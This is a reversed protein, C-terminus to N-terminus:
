GSKGGSTTGFFRARTHGIKPHRCSAAASRTRCFTIENQRRAKSRGYQTISLANHWSCASSGLRKTAISKWYRIWADLDHEIKGPWAFLHIHDPMIVYIGTEWRDAKFWIDRLASHVEENALWPIRLATSVTVFVLTPRTEVRTVGRCPRSRQPRNTM